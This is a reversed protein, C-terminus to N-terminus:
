GDAQGARLATLAAAQELQCWDFVRQQERRVFEVQELDIDRGAGKAADLFGKRNAPTMEGSELKTGNVVIATLLPWGKDHCYICVQDLHLNIQRFVNAWDLGSADAVHKYSLFRRQRGFDCIVAITKELDYDGTRRAELIRSAAIYRPDSTRHLRVCNDVITQLDKTDKSELDVAM